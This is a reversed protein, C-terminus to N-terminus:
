DGIWNRRALIRDLKYIVFRYEGWKKYHGTKWPCKENPKKQKIGLFKMVERDIPLYSNWGLLVLLHSAGYPGLGMISKVTKEATKKDCIGKSYEELFLEGSQYRRSLEIIYRSRYGLKVKERLLKEPLDKFDSPIPFANKDGVYKCLNKCMLQTFGWSANTTCITKVADEWATPAKLIRGWGEKLLDIYKEGRKLRCLRILGEINQDFSLVRSIVNRVSSEDKLLIKEKAVFTLTENDPTQQINGSYVQGNLKFSLSLKNEENDWSFPDLNVWGHSLVTNRLSFYPFVSINFILETM